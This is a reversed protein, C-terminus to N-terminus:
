RSAKAIHPYIALLAFLLSLVLPGLLFGIPGFFALGGIVSLLIFFPHIKISREILRPGLLNDILGVAVAGWVLLGLALATGTYFFLYLIGPILVLATGVAPILAAVAAVTGWLVPNPVGFIAFGIGTLIGQAIGVILSGRVVSNVARELKEFIEEDYVDTLPSLTIIQKKFSRGDRIVYFLALVLLFLNFIIKAAGSFINDIHDLSWELFERTYTNLDISVEPFNFGEPILGNLFSEMGNELADLSAPSRGFSVSTYLERAEFSINMGIFFLPTFVIILILILTLLAALSERNGLMKLIRKHLPSFVIGLVVALVLVSLYPLFIFFNLALTLVILGVFFWVQLKSSEPM